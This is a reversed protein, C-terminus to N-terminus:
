GVRCPWCRTSTTIMPPPKVPTAVATSSASFPRFTAMTSLLLIPQPAVPRLPPWTVPLRDPSSAMRLCIRRVMPSSTSSKMQCRRQRPCWIMLCRTSFYPM